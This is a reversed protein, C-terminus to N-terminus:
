ASKRTSSNQRAETDAESESDALLLAAALQRRRRRVLYAGVVVAAALVALAAGLLGADRVWRQLQALSASSHYGLFVLLPVLVLVSALDFFLFRRWSMRLAGATFLFPMKLGPLLRAFFLTWPGRRVYLDQARQVYRGRIMRSLFRHESLHNGVRRGVMYVFLDGTFCAVAGALIAWRLEIVGVAALLGATLLPVEEPVPVGLSAAWIGLMLALYAHGAPSLPLLALLTHM